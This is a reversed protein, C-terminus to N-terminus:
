EVETIHKKGAEMDKRMQFNRKRVKLMRHCAKLFARKGSRSTNIFKASEELFAPLHSDKYRNTSAPTALINDFIHNFSLDGNEWLTFITDISPIDPHNSLSNSNGLIIEMKSYGDRCSMKKGEVSTNHKLLADRTPQVVDAQFDVDDYDYQRRKCERKINTNASFNLIKEVM